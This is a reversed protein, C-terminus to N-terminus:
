QSHSLATPIVTDLTFTYYVTRTRSGSVQHTIEVEYDGDGATLNPLTVTGATGTATISGSPITTWQAAGTKRYKATVTAGSTQTFEIVPATTDNTIDDDAGSDSATQIGINTVPTEAKIASVETFTTQDTMSNPTGASDTVGTVKYRLTGADGNQLTYTYPFTAALSAPSVGPDGATFM